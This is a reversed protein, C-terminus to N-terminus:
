RRVRDRNGCTRDSCWRRTNAKTQDYFVWRCGENPCFKLRDPRNLALMDALSAAIRSLIWPWGPQLPLLESRVGNQHQVLQLRVPVNLYSNLAALDRADVTNGSSIKAALSQLLERFAVIKETPVPQPVESAFKWHKLFRGLWVPDHLHDTPIGYGNWEMSNLLDLWAYERGFGSAIFPDKPQKM